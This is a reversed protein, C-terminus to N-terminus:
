EADSDDSDEAKKKKAGRKGKAGGAAKKAKKDVQGQIREREDVGKSHLRKEEAEFEASEVDMGILSELTKIEQAWIEKKEVTKGDPGKVDIPTELVMPLNQFPEYNMINHFARLGLFGTGINAHM